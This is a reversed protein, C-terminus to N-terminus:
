SAVLNKSVRSKIVRVPSGVAVSYPPVDKNVVSGAGIVSGQGITVGDLVTVGHGLWCDDEILIGKRTVGQYRIPQTLDAFKHNNAYIGSHSAIMCHKGIRINGPGAICVDPAIFTEDDIFVSTNDLCGIDVYRELAVGNGLYIKNNQHGQADMRVGKFIHVGNGMEIASTGLFEVGNQIYVPKGMRSFIRRYVLNRLKPGLAITPIDGLLTTVLLEQSRQWKSTYRKNNM